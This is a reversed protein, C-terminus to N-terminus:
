GHPPIDIRGMRDTLTGIRRTGPHHAALIAVADDASTEPVVACFGCGMNFVEWMEADAVLGLDRVLGFVPLVPLPDSIEFGVDDRLRLLNPAGGGTIPALGHVATGARLLDLVARVYITTPELLADAVTAGGLPAPRDDLALGGLAQRALSYGNSHLGSSPLGILADGPACTRGSVIADLAVTGFCAATLDFGHPSPHGRILEPLVAGEGRPIEVGALEAGAKLGEGIARMADEDVREVALYDLVAIPEAGVCVVD